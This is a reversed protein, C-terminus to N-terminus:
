LSGSAIVQGTWRALNVRAALTDPHEPGPGARARAAARRVPGPRGGQGGGARDPPRARAPRGPTGTSRAPPGNGHTLYEESSIAPRPIVVARDSTIPSEPWGQATM